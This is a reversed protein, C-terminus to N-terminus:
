STFIGSQNKRQQMMQELVAKNSEVFQMEFESPDTRMWVSNQGQKFICEGKDPSNNIINIEGQSLNFTEELSKLDIKNQEFFMFTTTNQLIARAEPSNALVVFDQSAIRFGGHRKRIRRAVKEAFQVTQKYKIFQAFEDCDIIKPTYMLEPAKAFDEWLYNLIVHYAIPRLFGEEMHKLNFNVVQARNLDTDINNGFYTQGDFIPKSADRLFPRIGHIIRQAKEENQYHKMLYNFVDSLTPMEKKTKQQTIHDGVKQTGFKYLSDPHTTFKFREDERYLHTVAEELYSSEFVDIGAAEQNKGRILIDFFDVVENIKERVPVFHVYKKGDKEVVERDDSEELIAVEEDVDNGEIMDEIPVMSVNLQLPNLRMNGEESLTINIGGLLRTIDVFEGEVDIQRSFIGLGVTERARLLKMLVSKGSGALGFIGMNYNKPRHEETGFANFFEKQGTIKNIGINIGGNYFGNGSIFPAMTALAKRDINRMSEPILNKSLPTVSAFGKKIRGFTTTIKFMKNALEDEIANCIKNLERLSNAYVIGNIGIYYSDNIDLQIEEMLRTLDQIKTRLDNIVERSAGRTSQVSISSENAKIQREYTKIAERKTLKHIDTMIDIEGNNIMTQFWGTELLIPYGDSPIHFPRSYVTGGFNQKITFYDDERSSIGVGDPSVLDWFRTIISTNNDKVQLKANVTDNTEQSQLKKKKRFM